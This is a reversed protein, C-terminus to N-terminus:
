EVFRQEAKAVWEASSADNEDGRYFIGSEIDLSFYDLDKRMVSRYANVWEAVVPVSHKATEIAGIRVNPFVSRIGQIYVAVEQTAREASYSCEPPAGSFTVADYPHELDAYNM